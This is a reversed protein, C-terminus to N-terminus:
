NAIRICSTLVLNHKGANIVSAGKPLPKGSELAKAAARGLDRALAKVAEKCLAETEVAVQIISPQRGQGGLYILVVIAMWKM